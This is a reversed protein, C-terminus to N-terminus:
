FEHQNLVFYCSTNKHIERTYTFNEYLNYNEHIQLIKDEQLTYNLTNYYFRVHYLMIYFHMM